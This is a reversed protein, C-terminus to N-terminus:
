LDYGIHQEEAPPASAMDDDVGATADKTFMIVLTMIILKLDLWLSFNNIYISDLLIKDSVKTNYRGYVQAYGTLGANVLYRIDFNKVIKSYEDAYIPREPRPGVISMDGKLINILQPLEDLRYARLFRGVATIRDDQETALRAGLKEADRVMTRFKIINFKKRHMTYREQLYFVPGPSNIKIAAACILFVPSLVILGILSATFDFSKKIFKEAFSLQGNKIIIVPTDGVYTIRGGLFSLNEVTSIIKIHPAKGTSGRQLAYLIFKDRLDEFINSAILLEDAANILQAAESSVYTEDSPIKYVAVSGFDNSSRKLKNLFKEPCGEPFLILLSRQNRIKILTKLILSRCLLLLLYDLAYFIIWFSFGVFKANFLFLIVFVAAASLFQSIMLISPLMRKKASFSDVGGYADLMYLIICSTCLASAYFPINESVSYIGFVASAIFYAASISLIDGIFELRGALRHINIKNM